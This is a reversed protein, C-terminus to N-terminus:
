AAAHAAVAADPRAPAYADILRAVNKRPIFTEWTCSSATRWGAAAALSATAM